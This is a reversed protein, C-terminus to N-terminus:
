GKKTMVRDYGIKSFPCVKICISCGTKKYFVEFCKDSDIRSINGQEKKIPVELIANAPCKKLCIGCKEM